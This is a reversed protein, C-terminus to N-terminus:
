EGVNALHLMHLAVVEPFYRVTGGMKVPGLDVGFGTGKCRDNVISREEKQSWDAIEKTTLTRSSSWGSADVFSKIAQELAEASGFCKVLEERKQADIMRWARSSETAAQNTQTVLKKM